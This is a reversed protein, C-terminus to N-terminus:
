ELTQLSSRASRIWSRTAELRRLGHDRVLRAYSSNLGLRSASELESARRDLYRAYADLHQRAVSAGVADCFFIKLPFVIRGDLPDDEVVRLWSVLTARGQRTIRYVTKDPRAQQAVRTGDILGAARLRALAKYLHSRSPAWILAVSREALRALDYGSREGFALLGLVTYETL